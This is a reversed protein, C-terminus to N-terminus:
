SFHAFTSNIGSVRVSVNFIDENEHPTDNAYKAFLRIQVTCHVDQPEIMNKADTKKKKM